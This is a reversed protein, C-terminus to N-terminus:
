HRTLFLWKFSFGTSLNKASAATGAENDARELEEVTAKEERLVWWGKTVVRMPPPSPMQLKTTQGSKQPVPM